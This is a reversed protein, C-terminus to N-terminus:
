IPLTLPLKTCCLFIMAILAAASHFGYARHKLVGIKNNLGELRGNSVRLRIADLIGTRYKRLTRALKVFPRLKSRSAWCLWEKLHRTAALPGCAYLARLEEKLLYGRYVRRNLQAVEALRVQEAPRLNEPAKLLAWRSGKLVTAESSGKRERAEGRRLEHVAENALKVVHFPDFCIKANPARESVEAIYPACMDMSVVELKESREKGLEEFFGSLTKQSRGEGIWVPDGTRHDAVISLYKHGKRYSVEDLGIEYLEDLRHKDLKRAVVREVIRGVAAWSIHMLRTVATQNMERSLWAVLDEFDLTFRSEHAAWSVAEVLVGHEPCRLRCLTARIVVRWKGLSVHRWDRQHRDWAARTTYECRPCRHRRQRRAVTVVVAESRFEV